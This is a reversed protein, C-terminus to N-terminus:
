PSAPNVRDIYVPVQVQMGPIGPHLTWRNDPMAATLGQLHRTTRQAAADIAAIRIELASVRLEISKARETTRDSEHLIGFLATLAVAAFILNLTRPNM